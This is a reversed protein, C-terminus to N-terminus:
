TQPQETFTGHDLLFNWGKKDLDLGKAKAVAVVRSRYAENAQQLKNATQEEVHEAAFRSMTARVLEAESQVIVAHLARLEALAEEGVAHQVPEKIVELASVPEKVAGLAPTAEKGNGSKKSTTM